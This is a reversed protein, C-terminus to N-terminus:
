HIYSGQDSEEDSRTKLLTALPLLSLQSRIKNKTTVEAEAEQPTFTPICFRGSGVLSALELLTNLREPM